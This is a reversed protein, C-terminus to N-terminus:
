LEKLEEKISDLKWKQMKAQEKIVQNIIFPLDNFLSDVEFVITKGDGYEIYFEGDSCHLSETNYVYTHNEAAQLREKLDAIQQKLTM